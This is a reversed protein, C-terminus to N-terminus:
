QPLTGQMWSWDLLLHPIGKSQQRFGKLPDWRSSFGLKKAPGTRWSQSQGVKWNGTVKQRV